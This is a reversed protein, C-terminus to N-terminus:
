SVRFPLFRSNIRDYTGNRKIRDLAANIEKQLEPRFPSIGFAADGSLEAAHIVTTALGLKRFAAVKQLNLASIMPVLVAQAQGSILPEALEGHTAVANMEWGQKRGYAEQVSGVVAAVRVGAQGPVVGPRALWLSMSRYYPKAFLMKARREPTELLGVAAIDAKGQSIAPLLASQMVVEFACNVRMESCVARAVEVSFGTLQGFEDRFSMPPANELVLVRLATREAALVGGGLSAPIACWLLLLLAARSM